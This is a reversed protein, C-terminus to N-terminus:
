TRHDEHKPDRFLSFEVLDSELEIEVDPLTLDHMRIFDIVDVLVHVDDTWTETQGGNPVHDTLRLIYSSREPQYIVYASMFTLHISIAVFDETPEFLIHGSPFLHSIRLMERIQVDVEKDYEHQQYRIVDPDQGLQRLHRCSSVLMTREVRSLLPLIHQRWVDFPIQKM